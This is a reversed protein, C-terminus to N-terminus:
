GQIASMNELRQHTRPPQISRPHAGHLVAACGRLGADPHVPHSIRRRITLNGNGDLNVLPHTHYAFLDLTHRM